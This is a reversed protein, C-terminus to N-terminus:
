CGPFLRRARAIFRAGFVEIRYLLKILLGERALVVSPNGANIGQNLSCNRCELPPLFSNIRRRFRRCGRANWIEKFRLSKLDGFVRRSGCCPHVLGTVSIYSTTWPFDCRRPFRRCEPLLGGARRLREFRLSTRPPAIAPSFKPPVQLVIGRQRARKSAEDFVRNSLDPSYSLHEATIEAPLGADGLHLVFVMYAGLEAALDVVAPLEEINRRMAVFNIVLTSGAEPYIDRMKKYLRLREVVRDFHIKRRISEFTERTAGDISAAVHTTRRAFREMRAMSFATANTVFHIRTGYRMAVKHVQDFRLGLLAEGTGSFNVSVATPFLDNEIREFVKPQLDDIPQPHHTRPCMICAANCRTTTEIQLHVPLSALRTDGHEFHETARRENETKQQKVTQEDPESGGEDQREEGNDEIWQRKGRAVLSRKRLWEIYKLGCGADHCLPNNELVVRYQAEAEELRNLRVLRDAMRWRAEINHPALRLVQELCHLAEEHRGAFMMVGSLHGWAEILDPQIETAQRLCETGEHTRGEGLLMLAKRVLEDGSVSM